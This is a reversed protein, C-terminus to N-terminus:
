VHIYKNSLPKLGLVGGSEVMVRDMKGSMAVITYQSGGFRSANSRRIECGLM